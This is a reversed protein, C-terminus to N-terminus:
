MIHTLLYSMAFEEEMRGTKIGSEIKQVLQVIYILEGDTYKHLHKKANKINWGTLGTAKTIENGQYTQVQLLAKANNYLVSLMVMTAEGVDYSQQLLNFALNVKRDLIADVLDFIADYPPEYITGDKLLDDLTRNYDGNENEHGVEPYMLLAYRKIKDIELLIRGYDHECVEILREINRESLKIEKLIYKKLLADSLREFVIISASHSKYFKTRKDVGTLLHILINDGLIGSEIQQQLKENSMLEKDDRVIYIVPAKVFSRNRLSDYVDIISDIRRTELGTAKAIQDIYIQQVKWEDGSFILYSPLQKTQIKAKLTAVDM